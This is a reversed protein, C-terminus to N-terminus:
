GVQAAERGQAVLQRTMPHDACQVAVEVAQHRRDFPVAALHQLEDAVAQERDEGHGAIGARGALRREGRGPFGLQADRRGVHLALLNAFRDMAVAHRQMEAVDEVAVDAAGAPEVKRGDAGGDVQGGPEFREGTIQIAVQHDRGPEGCV